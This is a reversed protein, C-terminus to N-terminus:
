QWNLVVVTKKKTCSICPVSAPPLRSRLLDTNGKKPVATCHIWYLHHYLISYWEFLDLAAHKFADADELADKSGSLAHM